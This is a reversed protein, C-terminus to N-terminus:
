LSFLAEVRLTLDEFPPAALVDSPGLAPGPVMTGRVNSFTEVTKAVPDLIWMWGVGM